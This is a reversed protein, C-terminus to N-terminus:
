GIRDWFALKICSIKIRRRGEEITRKVANAWIDVDEEHDNFEHGELM